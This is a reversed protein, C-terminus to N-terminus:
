KAGGKLLDFFKLVNSDDVVIKDTEKYVQELMELRMRMKTIEPYSKYQQYIETFRKTDGLARNIVEIKYAEANQIAVEAEGKARPLLDNRYSYAQNIEREKDARASQVDRFANIVKEPPDVKKMQISLVEVGMNYGDLIAQLNKKTDAAIQARGEGRLIFSIENKGIADRMASEAAGKVSTGFGYDKVNYLFNYANKIRWQVEFNANVINEDGTLMIGEGEGKRGSSFGIEDRNVAAVKVKDVRGIPFPLHYRLGPESTSVYKGFTLQVGQEEPNVVYFGSAGWVALLALLLIYLFWSDFSLGSRYNRGFRNRISLLVADVDYINKNSGRPKYRPEEESGWPDDYKM